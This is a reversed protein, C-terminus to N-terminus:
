VAKLDFDEVVDVEDGSTFTWRMSTEDYSAGINCCSYSVLTRHLPREIMTETAVVCENLTLGAAGASELVRRVSEFVTLRRSSGWERLFVYQGKSVACRDDKQALGLFIVPDQVKVVQDVVTELASRIESVHIGKGRKVMIAVMSNVITAGEEVSFPMDRDVLGWLGAGMRVLPGEPQIQFHCNLGRDRAVRERIEDFRMPRGESMLLAVVAQHVDIRNASSQAGTLRLAWVMRGLNALSHSSELAISVVYPTLRGDFDLGRGELADTIERAHWQKNTDGGEISDEAEAILLRRESETLPFHKMLGYTGRAFLLGVNAASNHSRRVEIPRGLQEKCHRAIETYHLPRDSEMLIAEVISEAGFGFNVLVREGGNGEPSAFNAWRTAEAWLEPRLEEGVNGLVANVLSRAESEQLTHEIEAELILRAEKVAKDWAIQTLRSVFVQGRTRVLSFHKGCFRDLTYEFPMEVHEVGYFWPDLIELGLLPLPEQRNSLMKELRNEIDSRWVPHHSLREVCRSEKQRIRERTVGFEDGIEQLTKPTGNLGMRLHLIRVESENLPPLGPILSKDLSLVMRINLAINEEVEFEHVEPSSQARISLDLLDGEPTYRGVGQLHYKVIPNTLGETFIHVVRESIERFSKRGLNAFKLIASAGRRALDNVTVISNAVMCNNPRVSLNLVSIPLSLLWPPAYRLHDIITEPTLPTGAYYNFRELGLRGRLDTPLEHERSLYSADDTVGSARAESALRPNQRELFDCWNSVKFLDSQLFECLPKNAAECPIIALGIQEVTIAYGWGDLAVYLPIGEVEGVPNPAVIYKKPFAYHASATLLVRGSWQAVITEFAATEPRGFGVHVLVGSHFKEFPRWAEMLSEQDRHVTVDWDGVGQRVLLYARLLNM